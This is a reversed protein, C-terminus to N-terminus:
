DPDIKDKQIGLKVVFAGLRDRDIQTEAWRARLAANSSRRLLGKAEDTERDRYRVLAELPTRFLWASRGKGELASRDINTSFNFDSRKADPPRIYKNTLTMEYSRLEPETSDQYPSGAYVMWVTVKESM